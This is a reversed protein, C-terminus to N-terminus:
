DIHLVRARPAPRVDGTQVGIRCTRGSAADVALLVAHVTFDEAPGTANGVVPHGTTVTHPFTGILKVNLIRGSRCAFGTNSEQLTGPRATVTASTVTADEGAVARRAASM